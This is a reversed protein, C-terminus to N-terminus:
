SKSLLCVALIASILTHITCYSSPAIFLRSDSIAAPLVFVTQACTPFLPPPICIRTWAVMAFPIECICHSAKGSCRRSTTLRLSAPREDHILLWIELKMITRRGCKRTCPLIYTRLTEWSVSAAFVSTSHKSGRCCYVGKSICPSRTLKTKLISFSSIKESHMSDSAVLGRLRCTM